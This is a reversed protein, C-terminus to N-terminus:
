FLLFLKDQYWICFDSLFHIHVTKEPPIGSKLVSPPEHEWVIRVSRFLEKSKSAEQKPSVNTQYEESTRSVKQQFLASMNTVSAQIICQQCEESVNTVYQQCEASLISVNLKCEASVRNINHQCGALM